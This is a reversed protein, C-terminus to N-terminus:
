ARADGGQALALAALILLPPPAFCWVSVYFFMAAACGVAFALVGAAMRGLRTRATQREVAGLSADALDILDIMIPTTNGTMLTTPPFKALHLRQLANQAALACVLIM